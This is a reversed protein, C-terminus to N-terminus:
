SGALMRAIADHERTVALLQMLRPVLADVSLKGGPIAGHRMALVGMEYCDLRVGDFVCQTACVVITGHVAAYDLAPLFNLPSAENPVGGLGYGEIIIGHYGADVMLKLLEPSVGPTLKLVAVRDDLKEQLGFSGAPLEAPLQWCLNGAKWLAAEPGAVSGFAELQMSRLKRAANGSIVRGGFALWVGARGSVATKCALLLNQVADTGPEEIPLQSGTLVVPKGLNVLMYYLAAATYAMTDTGHTIVFGDCADYREAVARAMMQWHEPLLNSSDLQLLEACSCEAIRSLEPVMATLREGTLAPCLGDAGPESAITGGTALVCVKKKEM